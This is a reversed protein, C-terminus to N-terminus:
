LPALISLASQLPNPAPPFRCVCPPLALLQSVAHPLRFFLSCQAIIAGLLSHEAPALHAADPPDPSSKQFSQETSSTLAAQKLRWAICTPHTMCRTNVCSERPRQLSVCVNWAMAVVMGYVSLM